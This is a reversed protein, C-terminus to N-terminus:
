QEIYEKIDNANILGNGDKDLAKFQEWIKQMQDETAMKCLINM